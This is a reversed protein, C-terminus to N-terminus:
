KKPEDRTGCDICDSGLDCHDYTSGEGGDDCVGDSPWACTNDCLEKVCSSMSLTGSVAICAILIRAFSSKM